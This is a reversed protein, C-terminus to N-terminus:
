YNRTTKSSKKKSNNLADKLFAIVRSKCTKQNYYINDDNNVKVIDSGYEKFIKSAKRLESLDNNTGDFDNCNNYSYDSPNNSKIRQYHGIVCCKGKEDSFVGDLFKSHHIPSLINLADQFIDHQKQTVFDVFIDKNKM